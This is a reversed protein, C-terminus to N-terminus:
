PKIVGASGADFIAKIEVDTLARSFIAVEDILGDFYYDRDVGSGIEIQLSNTLLQGTRSSSDVEVGDMYAKQEGSRYTMAYHHWNQVDPTDTFVLFPEGVMPDTWLRGVLPGGSWIVIGFPGVPDSTMKDILVADGESPISNIKAWLGVTVEDTVDLNLADPIFVYDDVGDFSFAQGVMGPAFTTGRQLTGHNGDVIDQASGDGPWWSVLGSHPQVPLGPGCGDIVTLGVIHQLTLIVDFVDIQGNRVVDGLVMQEPTAEVLGVIILLDLIADFINVLEDGNLDGCVGPVIDVTSSGGVSVIAQAQSDSLLVHTVGLDARTTKVVSAASFVVTWLNLPAGSRSITSCALALRVAGGVDNSQALCDDFRTTPQASVFSLLASDYTLTMQAGMLDPAGDARVVVDFESGGVVSPPAVPLVRVPLLQATVSAPIAKTERVLAAIAGYASGAVATSALLVLITIVATKRM